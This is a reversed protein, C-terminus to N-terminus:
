RSSRATPPPLVAPGPAVVTLEGGERLRYTHGAAVARFHQVTHSGPWTVTISQAETATGLGILQRLPNGGFSSGYGVTRYVHRTSKGTRLAVDIRAGFAARNTRVGELELTLSHNPTGPNRYLASGFADGVQAGGMEELVDEVGRDGLDGFAVGHGKQLHGFGGATTVDAFRRGGDNRFMRNPLVAQFESSGTGLYVDLWGDNDLDGFNAGMPLIARDLRMAHTVDTFTGDRNNRYLKPLAAHFPEGAEFAGVDQESATWYGAVFLDPWGDNNYDFFWTAFGSGAVGAQATVDIFGHGGDNRFLHSAGRLNSVYLDPLGDNNFDGWAAGKVFGLDGLGGVETFTGDRNNRYLLSPGDERGLFFDLWGDNDYDAWAATQTPGVAGLLGAAETVDDFTGDGNNRLLSVPYRGQAGWWGGRLLLVDPHGDNNYDTEVLNLGGTEGLLGAAATVDTFTGDGNNHFLRMQDLPGSSTVMVDLWGDGAFDEVVAGGAHGWVDLGASAAEENFERISEDSAFLKPTLLRRAPVDEPYHGLQMYAVNLLWQSLRDHPDAELLATFERVAGAAGRPLTHAASKSLPFICTRQGHMNACNEGEGLSMSSLGLWSGLETKQATPMARGSTQWHARLAELTAVAGQNDGAGLQERALQLRVTTENELTLPKALLQRYYWMRLAPKSPDVRWDTARYIAALRAGM